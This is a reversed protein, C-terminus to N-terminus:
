PPSLSFIWLAASIARAHLCRPITFPSYLLVLRYISITMVLLSNVLGPLLSFQASVFCYVPGLIWDRAAYTVFTPIVTFVAYLMDAFALNRVFVLSVKNLKIANYRLSSYLVVGNGFIGFFAMFFCFIGLPVVQATTLFVGSM